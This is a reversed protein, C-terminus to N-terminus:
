IRIQPPLHFNMTTEDDFSRSSVGGGGEEKVELNRVALQAAAPNGGGEHDLVSVCAM